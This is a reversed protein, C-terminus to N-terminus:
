SIPNALYHYSKEVQSFHELQDIEVILWKARSVQLIPLFDMAGEGLTTPNEGLRTSGDKIHLLPARRGLEQILAAPNLGAAQVWYTDIEFGISPDLREQMIMLPIQGAVPQAEFWHNHYLMQLGAAQVIQNAENLLDCTQYITAISGFYTEPQLWPCVLYPSGVSLVADLVANKQEGLPLPSHSAIVSLGHEDFIQSAAAPSIEDPFGATEVGTYGIRALQQITTRFDQQLLDRVTYLQIGIPAM